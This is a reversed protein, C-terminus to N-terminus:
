WEDGWLFLSLPATLAPPSYRRECHVYTSRVVVKSVVNQRIDTSASLVSSSLLKAALRKPELNTAFGESGYASIHWLLLSRWGRVQRVRQTQGYGKFVQLGFLINPKRSGRTRCVYVKRLRYADYVPIHIGSRTDENFPVLRLKRGVVIKKCWDWLPGPSSIAILCNVLHCLSSRDELYPTERMYFPTVLRGKYYDCGCSERFRSDPNVYSKEKNVTFGLFSLLKILDSARESEVIIDDGYVSNRRSGIARVAAGFILTELTFTYGNGMSSFKAYEGEGWPAKYRCSRFSNFLEFWKYPLLLAVANFSLTDSAMALDITALSGDISGERALEQNRKQSSLDIGWKKLRRKLISDLALQFPLSHTPEKAITRHTKWNKPVMVVSNQETPIFRVEDWGIGMFSLASRLYPKTKSPARLKGTIKLFPLSRRRTRDETAGPTLRLYRGMAHYVKADVDGLLVSIDYQM